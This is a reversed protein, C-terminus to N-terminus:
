QITNSHDRVFVGVSHRFSVNHAFSTTSFQLRTNLVGFTAYRLTAGNKGSAAVEAGYTCDAFCCRLTMGSFRGFFLLMQLETSVAAYMYCTRLQEITPIRWHLVSQCIQLLM